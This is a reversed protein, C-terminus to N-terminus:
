DPIPLFGFKRGDSIARVGPRIYPPFLNNAEFLYVVNPEAAVFKEAIASIDANDPADFTFEYKEGYFKWPEFVDCGQMIATLTPNEIYATIHLTM